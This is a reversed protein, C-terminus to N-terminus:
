PLYKICLWIFGSITVGAYYIFPADFPDWKEWSGSKKYVKYISIIFWATFLFYLTIM